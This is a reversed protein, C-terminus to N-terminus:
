MNVHCLLSRWIHNQKKLQIRLDVLQLKKWIYFPWHGAPDVVYSFNKLRPEECNTQSNILTQEGNTRNYRLKMNPMFVNMPNEFSEQSKNSKSHRMLVLNENQLLARASSNSALGSIFSVNSKKRIILKGLHNSPTNYLIKHLACFAIFQVKGQNVIVSQLCDLYFSFHTVVTSSLLFIPKTM